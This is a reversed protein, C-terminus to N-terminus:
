CTVSRFRMPGSMSVANLYAATVKVSTYVGDGTISPPSAASYDVPGSPGTAKFEIVDLLMTSATVVMGPAVHTELTHGGHCGIKYDLDTIAATTILFRLVTEDGGPAHVIATGDYIFTTLNM